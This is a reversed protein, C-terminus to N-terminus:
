ARPTLRSPDPARRFALALVRVYARAAERRSRPVARRFPLVALRLLMGAALLPRYILRASARYHKKRYRLANAYFIPLFRAYGLTDAARGGRHRFGADPVYAIRGHELLRACLDVDEHWAPVFREDFGGAREFADRRVALAAAAAQEADFSKTRDDDAYRDRRRWPNNPWAHDALLLERADSALTPLRRLQFTAQDEAGPPALRRSSRAADSRDKEDLLRPAVAVIGPDADFARGISAFPEGEARTDPNLFLIADGTAAAAGQNAAPGFGRNVANVLLRAGPLLADLGETSLNAGGNDVVVAGVRVGGSPIRSKAREISRLAEALDEGDNWAVLVVAIERIV